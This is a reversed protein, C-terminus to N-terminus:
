FAGGGGGGSGGGAGGAGGGGLGGSGGFGDSGILYAQMAGYAGMYSILTTRFQKYERSNQFTYLPLNLLDEEPFKKGILKTVNDGVGLATGYIMYNDFAKPDEYHKSDKVYGKYDKWNARYEKGIGTWKVNVKSTIYISLISVPFLLIGSYLSYTSGPIPNNYTMAIILISGLLTIFGYIYMGLNNREVFMTKLKGGKLKKDVQKRWDLFKKKFHAKELNDGMKDMHIVGNKEFNRLFDLVTKEFSKLHKVDQNKNIKLKLGEEEYYCHDVILYRRKILDLITALFGDIGPDGIQKSIGNGCIANVIAPPDNEPLNGSSRGKTRLQGGWSQYVIYFPYILSILVILPLITFLFEEFWVMNAYDHQINEIALAGNENVKHGGGYSTFQNLPIAMRVEYWNNRPINTSTVLLNSNNWSSNETLYPPNFWYKVGDESKLHVVTNVRGVPVKWGEGWVKYQLEAVDNYFKVVHLMDYSYVVDIDRDHIPITKEPDEFLYVNMKIQSGTNETTYNYYASTVNVKINDINEYSKLPINRNVGNYTGTFHYHIIETVHLAGDDGVVLDVNAWPISYNRDDAYVSCVVGTLMLLIIIATFIINGKFNM